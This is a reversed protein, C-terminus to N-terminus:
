SQDSCPYFQAPTSFDRFLCCVYAITGGVSWIAPMMAFAQAINTKDTLEGVASKAVGMNGNLAGCLCRAVLLWWYSRSFGILILSLAVGALGFLLVPKRGIRDSLRSWHYITLAETAYFLSFQCRTLPHHCRPSVNFSVMLGVYYGVKEPDDGAIGLETIM